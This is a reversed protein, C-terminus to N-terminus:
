QEENLLKLIKITNAGEFLSIKRSKTGGHKECKILIDSESVM